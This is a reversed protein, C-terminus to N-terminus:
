VEISVRGDMQRTSIRLLRKGILTVFFSLMEVRDSQHSCGM